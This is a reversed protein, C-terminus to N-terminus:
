QISFLVWLLYFRVNLIQFVHECFVFLSNLLLKHVHLYKIFNEKSVTYVVIKVVFMKIRKTAETRLLRFIMACEPYLIAKDPIMKIMRRKAKGRSNKKVWFRGKGLNKGKKNRLDQM